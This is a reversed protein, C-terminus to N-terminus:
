LWHTTAASTYSFFFNLIDAPARSDKPKHDECAPKVMDENEDSWLMSLLAANTTM